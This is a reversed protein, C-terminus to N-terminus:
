GGCCSSTLPDWGPRKSRSACMSEWSGSVASAIMSRNARRVAVRASPEEYGSAGTSVVEGDIRPRFEAGRRFPGGNDCREILEAGEPALVQDQDLWPLV